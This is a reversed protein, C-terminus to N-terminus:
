RVAGCDLGGQRVPANGSGGKRREEKGAEKTAKERRSVSCEFSASYM